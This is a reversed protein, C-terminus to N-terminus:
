NINFDGRLKRFRKRVDAVYISGPYERLFQTYIEMAKERDQIQEEYIKGTMFLADDGLIDQPYSTSIENLHDLSEEFKGLKLDVQAMLWHVEDALPHSGYEVLMSDLKQLAEDQKNQFLLLEVVAYEKMAAGTTDFATNNQILLSLFMADNAIERTTALKLVDLHGQALEFDGKYYSLKANKLKAEYGVPEEKYAKEVQSYLLTSEWPQNILIYIDGLDLKCQAKLERSAKPHDAVQLLAEIAKDMEDMYFAYLLAQSRMAELTAFSPGIPSRYSEDIFNQYDEILKVIEEQEVPFRNKVLEERAKIKYRRASVYNPTRPYKEIIYDYIKLANEYDQNELAISAVEMVRDGETKNRRDLARAQMYAGYFNKQQLNVWILLESYLEKEPSQQIKDLLLDSLSQLDEEETLISQLVNKVYAIRTPDEDAYQLYELVMKDKENLRRYVNALELSFLAPDGSAERGTKFVRIAKEILESNIFHNAVIRIKYEDGKVENIVESFYKEAKEEEGKRMAVIGADTRYLINDPFNKLVKDIYNEAEKVYGNNLLLRIYRSHIAPVNKKKKALEEYLSKAKEVDGKDDYQQALEIDEADQALIIHNNTISLLFIVFTVSTLFKMNEFTLTSFKNVLM